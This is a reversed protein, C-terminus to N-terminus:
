KKREESERSCLGLIFIVMSGFTVSVRQSIKMTLLEGPSIESHIFVNIIMM